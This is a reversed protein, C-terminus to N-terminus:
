AWRPVRPPWRTNSPRPCHSRVLGPQGCAENDARLRAKDAGLAEDSSGGAQANVVAQAVRQAHPYISTRSYGTQQARRPVAGWCGSLVAAANGLWVAVAVRLM